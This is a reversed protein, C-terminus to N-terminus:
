PTEDQAVHGSCNWRGTLRTLHRNVQVGFVVLMRASEKLGIGVRDESVEPSSVHRHTAVDGLCGQCLGHISQYRMAVKLEAQAAAFGCQLRDKVPGQQRTVM